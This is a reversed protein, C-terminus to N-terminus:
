SVLVLSGHFVDVLRTSGTRVFWWRTYSGHSMLIQAPPSFPLCRPESPGSCTLVRFHWHTNVLITSGASCCGFMSLPDEPDLKHTFALPGHLILM